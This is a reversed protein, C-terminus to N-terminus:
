NRSNDLTDQIMSQDMMNKQPNRKSTQGLTINASLQRELVIALEKTRIPKAIYDDMGADLMRERDGKLAHATMAIIPINHNKVESEPNRIIKTAEIGDMEPMQIDMFILDYHSYKLVEVAEKGNFVVNVRYGLKEIFRKAAKQNTLNDEM